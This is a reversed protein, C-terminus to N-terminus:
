LNATVREQQNRAPKDERCSGAYAYGLGVVAALRLQGDQSIFSAFDRHSSLDLCIIFSVFSLSRGAFLYRFSNGTKQTLLRLLLVRGIVRQVDEAGAHPLLAKSHVGACWKAPVDLAVVEQLMERDSFVAFPELVVTSLRKFDEPCTEVRRAGASAQWEFIQVSASFLKRFM